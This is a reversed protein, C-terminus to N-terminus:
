KALTGGVRANAEGLAKLMFANHNDATIIMVPQSPLDFNWLAALGVDNKEIAALLAEFQTRRAESGASAGPAPGFEGIFLPKGAKHAVGACYAIIGLPDLGAPGNHQKGDAEPWYVHGSLTDIPDPNDALLMETWQNRTDPTWSAEHLNHWAATRPLSDGTFLPRAPDLKRVAEGFTRYATMVAPRRIKDRATRAAPTGLRPVVRGRGQDAGPLDAELLYENGFEWGWLAASNRYRGVMEDVYTRMLAHTRSAPNGWESLPESALDPVTSFYWFLSPILGLGRREAEAVFEDMLGFYRPRDKRYLAWDAPWFGGANFRIFPIGHGRLVAFGEKWSMDAPDPPRGESGIRRIFASFYNIGIARVPRGGKVFWGGAVGLGPSAAFGTSEPTAAGPVTATTATTARDAARTPRGAMLGGALGVMGALIDRRKM